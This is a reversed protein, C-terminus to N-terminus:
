TSAERENDANMEYVREFLRAFAARVYRKTRRATHPVPRSTKDAPVEQTSACSVIRGGCDTVEDVTGALPSTLGYPMANTGAPTGDKLVSLGPSTTTDFKM